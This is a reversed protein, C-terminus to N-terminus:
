MWAINIFHVEIWAVHWLKVFDGEKYVEIKKKQDGVNLDGFLDEINKM